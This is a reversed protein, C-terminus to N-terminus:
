IHFFYILFLKCLRKSIIKEEERNIWRQFNDEDKLIDKINSPNEAQVTFFTNTNATIATNTM